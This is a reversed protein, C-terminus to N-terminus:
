RILTVTGKYVVNDGYGPKAVIIVYQYTGMDQPVGKYTGDWGKEKDNTMFVCEGWRNFVRMEVLKQYRFGAPRFVDNLGDGNPTFGTPVTETQTSDVIVLVNATDRCGYQDMGYVTYTTTVSPTAIPNNINPNNLSGDNPAWTYNLESDANLYVSSGYNITTTTTVNQLTAPLISQLAISHSVTCGFHNMTATLTYTYTGIASFHPIQANPNDLNTSPSWSYTFGYNNAISDPKVWENNYLALPSLLCLLTDSVTHMYPQLVYVNHKVSDECLLNDTVVLTVPYIGEMAYTHSTSPAGNTTDGSGDGYSWSQGFLSSVPTGYLSSSSNDTINLATGNCITDTFSFDATVTHRVDVTHTISSSCHPNSATLTVTYINHGTMYIHNPPNRNADPTSGDGFNWSYVNANSTLNTFLVSDYPCGPHKLTDFEPVVGPWVNVSGTNKCGYISTVEVNYTGAMTSDFGYITEMQNTSYYGLPGTWTYANCVSDTTVSLTLPNVIPACSAQNSTVTPIPLPHIVAHCTATDVPIGFVSKIVTYTGSDTISAPYRFNSQSTSFVATSPAPGFWVYTANTSDGPANFKLTDGVCPSNCTAGNCTLITLYFTKRLCSSMGSASDSGTITYTIIPPLATTNIVQSTGTTSTLGVSPAWTWTSWSWDKDIAHLIDVPLSTLGPYLCVNFTDYNPQPPAWSTHPTGNIVIQPDPFSSDIGMDGNFVYSYSILASDGAPIDGINYTLAIAIDGNRTGGLNYTAGSYTGNWTTSLDVSSSLSWSDYIFCKARCDKTSLALYASAPYGMGIAKVMVKHTADENQHVITNNTPFGGGSWSQDNDPDCSRMYYVQPVVGGSVNKMKTTVVVSSAFTDVRTEQTIQLAAATGASGTWMSTARGGVNSYSVVSGALGCGGGGSAYGAGSGQFAQNRGTGIQLEWGEFPSGPYTYDGMFNPAGVSWGDHGWDYVEALAAGPSWTTGGNHPHYVTPVTPVTPSSNTGFSGNPLEGIELYAGQLFCNAGVMQASANGGIVLLFCFLALLRNRYNMAKM